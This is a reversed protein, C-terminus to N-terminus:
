PLGQVQRFYVTFEKFDLYGSGDTDVKDFQEFADKVLAEDVGNRVLEFLLFEERDITGSNDSDMDKFLDKAKAKMRLRKGNQFTAETLMAIASGVYAVGTLMWFAGVLKGTQTVPHYAGFGVTLLTIISM